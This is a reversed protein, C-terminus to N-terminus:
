LGVVGSKTPETATDRSTFQSRTGWSQM